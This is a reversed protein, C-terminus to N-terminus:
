WCWGPRLRPSERGVCLAGRTSPVNAAVKFLYGRPDAILEERDYRPLRLFVEQAVDDLDAAVVGRRRAIFRRLPVRLERFWEALRSHPEASVEQQCSDSSL